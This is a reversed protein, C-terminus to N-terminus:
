RPERHPESAGDRMNSQGIGIRDLQCLKVRKGGLIYPQTLCINGWEASIHLRVLVGIGPKGARERGAPLPCHDLMCCGDRLGPVGVAISGVLHIEIVQGLM